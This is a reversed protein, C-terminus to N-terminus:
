ILQVIDRLWRHGMNVEPVSLGCIQQLLYWSSLPYHKHRFSLMGQGQQFLFQIGYERGANYGYELGGEM